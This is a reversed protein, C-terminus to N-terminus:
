AAFCPLCRFPLWFDELCPVERCREQVPACDISAIPLNLGVLAQQLFPKTLPVGNMPSKCACYRTQALNSVVRRTMEIAIIVGARIVAPSEAAM